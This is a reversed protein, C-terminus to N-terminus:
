KVNGAATGISRGIHEVERVDREGCVGRLAAMIPTAGEVFPRLCLRSGSEDELQGPYRTRMGAIDPEVGVSLMRAPERQSVPWTMLNEGQAHPNSERRSCNPPLQQNSTALQALLASSRIGM